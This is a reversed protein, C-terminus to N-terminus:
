KFNILWKVGLPNSTRIAFSGTKPQAVQDEKIKPYKSVKQLCVGQFFSQPLVFKM